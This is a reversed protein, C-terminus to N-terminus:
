EEESAREFIYRIREMSAKKAAISAEDADPLDAARMYAHGAGEYIEYNYLKKAVEMMKATEDITANVRTDKSGYFGYVPTDIENIEAQEKPGSGYFVLAAELEYAQTAFRFTTSGGWCFGMIATKGNSAPIEQGYTQVAVLDSMVQDPDLQYIATRADDSVPFDSTKKFNDSFDSLLDPAIAIYGEAAMQDAMSRVWDTLGRNEHVVIIAMAKTEVEPYVIFSHIEKDGNNIIVWEQHRPSEELQKLVSDQAVAFFSIVLFSVVVILREM